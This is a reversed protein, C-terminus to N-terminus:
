EGEDGDITYGEGGSFSSAGIAARYTLFAGVGIGVLAPALGKGFLQASLFMGLGMLVWTVLFWPFMALSPSDHWFAARIVGPAFAVLLFAVELISTDM